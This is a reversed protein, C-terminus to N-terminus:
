PQYFLTVYVSGSTPAGVLEKVFYGTGAMLYVDNNLQKDSQIDFIFSTNAALPFHDTRGTFSFMIAANTFNQILIAIGPFSSAVGVQTYTAGISSFALVQVPAVRLQNGM